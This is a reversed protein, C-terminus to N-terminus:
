TSPTYELYFGEAGKKFIGSMPRTSYNYNYDYKGETGYKRVFKDSAEAPVHVMIESTSTFFNNKSATYAQFLVMGDGDKSAQPQRTVYACNMTVKQGLYKDPSNTYYSAVRNDEARTVLPILFMALGLLIRM